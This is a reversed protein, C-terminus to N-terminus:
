APRAFMVQFSLQVKELNFFSLIDKYNEQISTSLIWPYKLLLKGVDGDM